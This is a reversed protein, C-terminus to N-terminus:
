KAKTEDLINIVPIKLHAICEKNFKPNKVIDIKNDKYVTKWKCCKVTAGKHSIVSEKWLMNNNKDANLYIKDKLKKPGAQHLALTTETIDFTAIRAKNSYMLLWNDYAPLSVVFDPVSCWPFSTRSTIFYDQANDKGMKAGISHQTIEEESGSKIHKDQKSFNAELRLGFVIYSEIKHLKTFNQIAQLSTILKGIHFLIDGNSYMYLDTNFRRQSELFMQRLVPRSGATMNAMLEIIRWNSNFVPKNGSICAGDKVPLKFHKSSFIAINTTNKPFNNYNCITNNQIPFRSPERESFTTFITLFKRNLNRHKMSQINILHLELERLNKIMTKNISIIHKSTDKINNIAENITKHTDEVHSQEKYGMNHDGHTVNNVARIVM